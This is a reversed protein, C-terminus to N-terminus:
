KAAPPEAPQDPKKAAAILDVIQKKLAGNEDTLTRVRADCAAGSDLAANRQDQLAAVLKNADLPPPGQQAFAPSGALCILLVLRKM